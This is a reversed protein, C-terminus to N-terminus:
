PKVLGKLETILQNANGIASKLAAESSAVPVCNANLDPPPASPSWGCYTEVATILANQGAIGRNIAQCPSASSDAACQVEYKLQATRLVGGLSAAADRANQALNLNSPCAFGCLLLAMIPILALKKM